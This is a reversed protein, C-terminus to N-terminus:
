ESESSTKIIENLWTTMSYQEKKDSSIPILPLEYFNLLTEKTTNINYVLINNPCYIDKNIINANNTLIKKGLFIGELCRLTLGSQGEKNFDIIIKTKELMNLIESYPIPHSIVRIGDYNGSTLEKDVIIFSTSFGLGNLRKNLERLEPLRNKNQGIFFFDVEKDNDYKTDPLNRHNPEKYIQEHLYMGYKQADAKDFTHFKTTNSKLKFLPETYRNVTNWFWFHINRAHTRNLIYKVNSYKLYDFFIIHDTATANRLSLIAKQNLSISACLTFHLRLNISEIIEFLRSEREMPILTIQPNNSFEEMLYETYSDNYYVIYIM